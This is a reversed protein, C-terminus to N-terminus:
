DKLPSEESRKPLQVRGRRTLLSQQPDNTRWIPGFSLILLLPLSLTHSLCRQASSAVFAGSNFLLSERMGALDCGPLLRGLNCPNKIKIKKQPRPNRVALNRVERETRERPMQPSWFISRGHRMCDSQLPRKELGLKPKM